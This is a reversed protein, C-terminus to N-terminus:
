ALDLYAEPKPPERFSFRGLRSKSAASKGAPPAEPRWSSAKCAALPPLSSAQVVTKTPVTQPACAGLLLLAALILRRM